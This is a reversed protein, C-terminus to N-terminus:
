PRKGRLKSYVKQLEHLLSEKVKGAAARAGDRDYEKGTKQMLYNLGMNCFCIDFALREGQREVSLNAIGGLNLCVDYDSFLWHDGVPVLPAGQGGLMVDLSRFDCIV